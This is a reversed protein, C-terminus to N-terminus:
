TSKLPREKGIGDRRETLEIAEQQMRELAREITQLEERMRNIKELLIDLTDKKDTPM